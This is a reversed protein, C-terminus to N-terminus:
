VRRSLADAGEDQDPLTHPSRSGPTVAIAIVILAAAALHRLEIPEGFFVAGIIFVTPLETAGAIASRTAGLVPAAVSYITMPILACGVGIGLVMAWVRPSSPVVQDAPLSFLVPTLGAAAGLAVAGLREFPDLTGLRETLVAVSFGFTAPALFVLPRIGASAVGDSLAVVGAAIVLGGGVLHLLTPRVRFVLWLTLVTFLPYTMYAVGAIAVAGSEIADVYAIWGFAMALGSGIGWVTASRAAPDWRVLRCLVAAVAGFRAFAVTAPALGADTLHRAFFTAGAYAVSVLAILGTSTKPTPSWTRIMDMPNARAFYSEATLLTVLGDHM